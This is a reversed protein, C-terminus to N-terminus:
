LQSLIEAKKTAYEEESILSQELLLKLRQLRTTPDSIGSALLTQEAPEGNIQKGFLAGWCMEVEDAEADMPKIMVTADEPWDLKGTEFVEPPIKEITKALKNVPLNTFIVGHWALNWGNDIMVVSLKKWWKEAAERDQEVNGSEQPRNYSIWKKIPCDFLNKQIVQKIFSSLACLPDTARNDLKNDDIFYYMGEDSFWIGNPLGNSDSENNITDTDM